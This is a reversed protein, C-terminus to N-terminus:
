LLNQQFGIRRELYLNNGVTLTLRHARVGDGRLQAIIHNLDPMVCEGALTKGLTRNPCRLPKAALGATVVESLNIGLQPLVPRMFRWISTLGRILGAMLAPSMHHGSVAISYTLGTRTAEM